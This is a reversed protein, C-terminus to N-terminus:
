GAGRLETAPQADSVGIATACEPCIPRTAAVVWADIKNWAMYDLVNQEAHLNGDALKEGEYLMVGPRLYGGGESTGIVTTLAGEQDIGIGVAMTVYDRTGASM